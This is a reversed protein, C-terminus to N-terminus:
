LAAADVAPARESLETGTGPRDAPRATGEAMLRRV